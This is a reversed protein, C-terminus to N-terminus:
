PNLSRLEATLNDRAASEWRERAWPTRYLNPAALLSEIMRTRGGRFADDAVHAYEGRIAVSNEQYADPPLALTALDADSLVEGNRDGAAPDHTVTTPAASNM